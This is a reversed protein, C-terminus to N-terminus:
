NGGYVVEQLIWCLRTRLEVIFLFLVFISFAETLVSNKLKQKILDDTEM